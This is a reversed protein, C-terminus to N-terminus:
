DIEELQSLVVKTQAEQAEAISVLARAIQQLLLEVTNLPTVGDILDRVTNWAYAEDEM